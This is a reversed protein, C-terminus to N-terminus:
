HPAELQIGGLRTDLTSSTKPLPIISQLEPLFSPTVVIAQITKQIEKNIKKNKERM